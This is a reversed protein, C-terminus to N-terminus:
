YSSSRKLDQVTLLSKEDKILERLRKIRKEKKIINNYLREYESKEKKEKEPLYDWGKGVKSLRYTGRRKM